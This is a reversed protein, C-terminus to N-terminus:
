SRPESVDASTESGSKERFFNGGSVDGVTFIRKDRGAPRSLRSIYFLKEASSAWLLSSFYSGTSSGTVTRITILYTQCGTM